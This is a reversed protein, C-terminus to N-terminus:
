AGLHRARARRIAEDVIQQAIASVKRGESQSVARLKDFAEQSTCGSRSMVIGMAQDIVARGDLAVQLQSALRRANALAAANQVSVAAPVAFLEGLEIARADFANKEHAYVNMAGLVTDGVLLPLSVVSHVGLRGVRPGFRPWARDGGLSGSSVTRGEAAATICPGENIGYQIADVERVFDASAVITDPRDNQLLTVGAGDAGPIARVAFEAVSILMDPLSLEATALQSLEALSSRLEAATDESVDDEPRPSDPEAAGPVERLDQDDM